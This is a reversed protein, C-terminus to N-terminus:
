DDLISSDQELSANFIVTDPLVYEFPTMKDSVKYTEPLCPMKFDKRQMSTDRSDVKKPDFMLISQEAPFTNASLLLNAPEDSNKNMHNLVLDDTFEALAKGDSLM